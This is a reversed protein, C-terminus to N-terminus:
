LFVFRLEVSTIGREQDECEKLDKLSLKLNTLHWPSALSGNVRRPPSLSLKQVFKVTWLFLGCTFHVTWFTLMLVTCIPSEGFLGQPRCLVSCSALCLSEQSEPTTVIFLTRVVHRFCIFCDVHVKVSLSFNIEHCTTTRSKRYVTRSCM